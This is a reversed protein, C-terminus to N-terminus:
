NIPPIFNATQDMDANAIWYYAKEATFGSIGNIARGPVFSKISAGLEFIIRTNVSNVGVDVFAGSNKAVVGNFQGGFVNIVPVPPAPNVTITKSDYSVNGDNDTVQLIYTYVGALLGTVASTASTPATIAGGSPGASKTWLYATITGDADTSGSGNLNGTATPLTIVDDVGANAVPATGTSIQYEVAGADSASGSKRPNGYFDTTIFGIDEPMTGLLTGAAVPAYTSPNFDAINLTGRVVNNAEVASSTFFTGNNLNVTYNRGGNFTKDVEPLITLNGKVTGSAGYFDALQANFDDAKSRYLTNFYVFNNLNNHYYGTGDTIYGNSNNTNFEFMSYKRKDHSINNWFRNFGNTYGTLNLTLPFCRVDNAWQDYFMNNYIDAYGYYQICVLHGGATPGGIHSFINNNIKWGFGFLYVPIPYQSSDPQNVNTFTCGTIEGDLSIGNKQNIFTGYTIGDFLCNIFKINYYASSKTGAFTKTQGSVTSGIELAHQDTFNRFNCGTYTIDHTSGYISAFVAHTYATIDIGVFVLFSCNAIYNDFVYSGTSFHSGSLFNIIIPNGTAGNLGDGKLCQYSGAQVNLTDGPNLTIGLGALAAPTLDINGSTNPYTVTM